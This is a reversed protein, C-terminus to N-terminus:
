SRSITCSVGVVVEITLRVVEGNASFTTGCGDRPSQLHECTSRCPQQYSRVTYTAVRHLDLLRSGTQPIPLVRHLGGGTIRIFSKAGNAYHGTVTQDIVVHTLAKPLPTGTKTPGPSLGSITPLPPLTTSSSGGLCATSLSVVLGLAMITFPRRLPM